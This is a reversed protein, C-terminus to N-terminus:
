MGMHGVGTGVLGGMRGGGRRVHRTREASLLQQTPTVVLQRLRHQHRVVRRGSLPVGDFHGFVDYRGVGDHDVLLQAGSLEAHHLLADPGVLLAM